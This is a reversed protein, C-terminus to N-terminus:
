LEDGWSQVVPEARAEDIWQRISALEHRRVAAVSPPDYAAHSFMLDLHHGGEPILLSTLSRSSINTAVGGSSWGDFGGSSFVINSHGALISRGGYEQAIWSTRPQVGWFLSCHRDDLPRPPM